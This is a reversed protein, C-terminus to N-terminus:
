CTAFFMLLLGFAPSNTSKARQGGADAASHRSESPRTEKAVSWSKCSDFSFSLQSMNVGPGCNPNPM